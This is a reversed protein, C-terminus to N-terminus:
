TNVTFSACPPSPSAASSSSHQSSAASCAAAAAAPQLRSPRQASVGASCHAASAASCAAGPLPPLALMWLAMTCLSMRRSASCSRGTSPLIQFPIGKKQCTVVWADLCRKCLLRSIHSSSFRLDVIENKNQCKKQTFTVQQVNWTAPSTSYTKERSLQRSNGNSILCEM